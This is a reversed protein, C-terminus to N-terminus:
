IERLLYVYGAAAAAHLTIKMIIEERLRIHRMLAAYEVHGNDYERM